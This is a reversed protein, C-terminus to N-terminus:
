NKVRFGVSRVRSAVRVEADLKPDCFRHRHLVIREWLSLDQPHRAIWPYEEVTGSLNGVDEQERLDYM